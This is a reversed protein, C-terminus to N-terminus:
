LSANTDSPEIQTIFAFPLPATRRVLRTCGFNPRKTPGSDGVQDGSPRRMAYVYEAVLLASRFTQSIFASPLLLRRSMRVGAHPSTSTSQLGLPPCSARVHQHPQPLLCTMRM